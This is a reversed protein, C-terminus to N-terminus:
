QGGCTTPSPASGSGRTTSASRRRATGGLAEARDLGACFAREGAGTVVIARVEDDRRIQQWIAQLEDLMQENFANHVQPRDLTLHAVGDALEYRVVPPSNV